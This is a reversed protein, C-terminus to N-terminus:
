GLETIPAVWLNLNPADKGTSQLDWWAGAAFQSWHPAGHIEGQLEPAWSQALAFSCSWWNLKHLLVELAAWWKEKREKIKAPKLSTCSLGKGWVAGDQGARHARGRQMPSSLCVRKGCFDCCRDYSFGLLQSLISFIETLFGDRFM